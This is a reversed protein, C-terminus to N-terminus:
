DPKAISIDCFTRTSVNAEEAIQALSLKEYGIQLLNAVALDTLQQRLRAKKNERHSDNKTISIHESTNDM